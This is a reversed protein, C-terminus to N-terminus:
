KILQLFSIKEGGVATACVGPELQNAQGGRVQFEGGRERACHKLGLIVQIFVVRGEEGDEGFEKARGRGHDGDEGGDGDKGRCAGDSVVFNEEGRITPEDSTVVDGLGEWCDRGGRHDVVEDATAISDEGDAMGVLGHM